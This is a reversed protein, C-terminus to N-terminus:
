PTPKGLKHKRYQEAGALAVDSLMGLTLLAVILFFGALLSDVLPNPHTNRPLQEAMIGQYLLYIGISAASAYELLSLAKEVRPLEWPKYTRGSKISITALVALLGLIALIGGIAVVSIREWTIPQPMLISLLPHM